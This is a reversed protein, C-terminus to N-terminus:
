ILTWSSPCIHKKSMTGQWFPDNYWIEPAIIQKQDNTNLYAAWWSFSSNAIINNNCNKMLYFDEIDDEGDYGPYQRLNVFVFNNQQPINGKVWDLDNSFFYFVPEIIHNSMNHIADTYYEIPLIRFFHELGIYDGRRIHVSVSNNKKIKDLYHKAANTLPKKPQYLTILDERVDNFYDEKACWGSIYASGNPSFINRDAEFGPSDFYDISKNYQSRFGIKNLIRFLLSSTTKNKLLNIEENSARQFQVNMRDLKFWKTYQESDYFSLDLKLECQNRKASAYATAFQFLQNGFGGKLHSIIIKDKNM